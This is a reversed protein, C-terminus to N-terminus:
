KNIKIYIKSVLEDYNPVHETTYSYPFVLLQSYSHFDLYLQIKDAISRLFKALSKTEPESFPEPGPYTNSCPYNKAIFFIACSSSDNLGGYRCFFPISVSSKLAIWRMWERDGILYVSCKYPKRKRRFLLVFKWFKLGCNDGYWKSPWLPKPFDTMLGRSRNWIKWRSINSHPCYRISYFNSFIISFSLSISIIGHQKRADWQLLRTPWHPESPLNIRIKRISYLGINNSFKLIRGALSKVGLRWIGEIAREILQKSLLIVKMKFSYVNRIFLETIYCRWTILLRFEHKPM